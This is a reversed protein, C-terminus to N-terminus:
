QANRPCAEIAVVAPAQQPGLEFELTSVSSVTQRKIVKGDAGECYSIKRNGLDLAVRRMVAEERAGPKIAGESRTPTDGTEASSSSATM